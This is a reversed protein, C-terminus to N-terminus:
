KFRIQLNLNFFWTDNEKYFIYRTGKIKNPDSSPTEFKTNSILYEELQNRDYMHFCVIEGNNKVIIYGGTAEYQGNWVQSPKMGLATAILFSKIKYGYFDHGMSSDFNFPNCTTIRKIVKSIDKGNIYGDLVMHGIIEPLKCDIMRLNNEFVTSSFGYFRMTLGKNQIARIREVVKDKSSINNIEDATKQDIKGEVTYFMNTLSSANLLSSKNGAESKISFKLLIESETHTDFIVVSIDAKDSSKAKTTFCQCRYLFESVEPIPFAGKFGPPPGSKIADFLRKAAKIFDLCPIVDVTIGNDIISVIDKSIHYEIERAKSGIGKEERVVKVVHYFTPLTNLLGDAAHVIGTGLIHLLVYLESWEGKNATLM